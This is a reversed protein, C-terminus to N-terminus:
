KKSCCLKVFRENGSLDLIVDILEINYGSASMRNQADENDLWRQLLVPHTPDVEMWLIVLNENENCLDILRYIIQKIVYMGDNDGGYLANYDEYKIVNKSLTNM